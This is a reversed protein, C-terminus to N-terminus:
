LAHAKMNKELSYFSIIDEELMQYIYSEFTPKGGGLAEMYSVKKKVGEVLNNFRKEKESNM